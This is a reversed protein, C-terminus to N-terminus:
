TVCNAIIVVGVVAEFKPSRVLDALMPFRDPPSRVHADTAMSTMSMRRGSTRVRMML